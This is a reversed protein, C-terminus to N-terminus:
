DSGRRAFVLIAGHPHDTGYRQTASSADLRQLGEVSMTPLQNLSGVGGMRVGDYYVPIEGQDRFSIQGRTRLWTPRLTQVLQLANTASSARIEESVIRDASRRAGTEGQQPGSSACASLLFLCSVVGIRLFATM